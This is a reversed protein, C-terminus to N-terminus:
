SEELEKYFPLSYSYCLGRAYHPVPNGAAPVGPLYARYKLRAEYRNKGVVGWFAITDVLTIEVIGSVNCNNLSSM